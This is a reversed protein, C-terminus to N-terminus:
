GPKRTSLKRKIGGRNEGDPFALGWGTFAAIKTQGFATKLCVATASLVASATQTHFRFITAGLSWAAPHVQDGPLGVPM